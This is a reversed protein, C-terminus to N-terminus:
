SSCRVLAKIYGNEKSEMEYNAKDFEDMSYIHTAVGRFNWLGESILKLGLKCCETQFNERREHLNILTFAKVNWLAFDVDRSSDNHFGGVGLLGHASVMEGALKLADQTGAFEIVKKFGTNFIDPKINNENAFHFGFKDWNLLYEDPINEPSYARSAGFMLSNKRAEDRPDIAIINGAGKMKLLSIMGLGMYGAGVVAIGEGPIDISIKSVASILCSLPEAIADEDSVNDPVHVTKNEDMSIYEAYGAGLGTVRDGPEFNKVNSGIEVVVGVPEHGFRDGSKATSWPYWESHCMGTYKVKVLIQNAGIKPYDIDRVISKKPGDMVIAKMNMEELLYNSQVKYVSRGINHM